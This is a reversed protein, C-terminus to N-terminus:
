RWARRSAASSSSSRSAAELARRELWPEILHHDHNGAVIVIEGDAMAEGLAAMVPEAAALAETLPRDRLELVDGLLVLRDVGDLADVLRERIDERRLLDAGSGLGLHLDSIVASIM